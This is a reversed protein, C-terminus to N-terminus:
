WRRGRFGGDLLIYDPLSLIARIVVMITLVDLMYYIFQCDDFMPFLSTWFEHIYM